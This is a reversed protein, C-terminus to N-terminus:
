SGLPWVFGVGCSMILELVECGAATMNTSGNPVLRLGAVLMLQCTSESV